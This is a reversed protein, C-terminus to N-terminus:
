EGDVRVNVGIARDTRYVTPKKWGIWKECSAMQREGSFVDRGPNARGAARRCELYVRRYLANCRNMHRETRGRWRYGRMRVYWEAGRIGIAGIRGGCRRPGVDECGQGKM